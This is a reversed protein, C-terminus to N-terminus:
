GEKQDPKDWLVVMEMYDNASNDIIHVPYGKDQVQGAALMIASVEFSTLPITVITYRNTGYYLVAKDGDMQERRMSGMVIEVLVDQPAEDWQRLKQTEKRSEAVASYPSVREFVMGAGDAEQLALLSTDSHMFRKGNPLIRLGLAKALVCFQTSSLEQSYNKEGLGWSLVAGEWEEGPTEVLADISPNQKNWARVREAETMGKLKKGM